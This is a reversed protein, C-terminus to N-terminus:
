DWLRLPTQTPKTAIDPLIINKGAPLYPLDKAIDSNAALVIEVSGNSFGYYDFCIKDLEDDQITRYIQSM